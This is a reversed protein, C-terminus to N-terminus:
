DEGGGGRNKRPHGEKRVKDEDSWEYMRIWQPIGKEQGSEPEMLKIWSRM